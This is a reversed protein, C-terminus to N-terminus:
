ACGRPARDCVIQEEQSLEVYRRVDGLFGNSELVCLMLRGCDLACCDGGEQGGHLGHGVGALLGKFFNVAGRFVKEFDFYEVREGFRECGEL